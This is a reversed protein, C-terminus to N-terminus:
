TEEENLEQDSEQCRKASIGLAPESGTLPQSSCQKTLQDAIEYGDIGM